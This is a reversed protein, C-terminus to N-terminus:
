KKVNFHYKKENAKRRAYFFALGFVLLVLALIWYFSGMVYPKKRSFGFLGVPSFYNMFFYPFPEGRGFDVHFGSLIGVSVTYLFPPLAALLAHSTKLRVVPKEMFFDAIAAVPSVVHTLLNYISWPTYSEDAFPALIGCFVLCTVTISVTFLYKMVYLVKVAKKSETKLGQLLLIALTTFGLWLNSQATFYLLRRSWHSFGDRAAFVLSLAVGGLSSFVILWKLFVRETRVRKM